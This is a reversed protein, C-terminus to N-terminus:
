ARLYEPPRDPHDLIISLCATSTFPTLYSILHESLLPFELSPAEALTHCACICGTETDCHCPQSADAEHEHAPHTSCVLSLVADHAAVGALSIMLIVGLLAVIDRFRKM